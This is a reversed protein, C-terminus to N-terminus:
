DQGTLRRWFRSLASKAGGLGRSDGYGEDHDDAYDRMKSPAGLQPKSTTRTQTRPDDASPLAPRPRDDSLGLQASPAAPASIGHRQQEFFTEAATRLSMIQGRHEAEHQLLQQAVTEATVTMRPVDRVRRFEELSMGQFATLLIAHAKDLRYLHGDLSINKVPTINARDDVITRPFWDAIEIPMDQQLVLGYLWNVEVAAVHYLVSGITHFNPGLEWDVAESPLGDVCRMTRQRADALLSLVQGIEPAYGSLPEVLFFKQEDVVTVSVLPPPAQTSVRQHTDDTNDTDDINEINEISEISEINDDTNLNTDNQTDQM